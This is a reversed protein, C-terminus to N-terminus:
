LGKKSLTVTKLSSNRAILDFHSDQHLLMCGNEIAIQAILLDTNPVHFGKARLRFGLESIKVWIPEPAPLYHLAGFDASLDHYEKKRRTGSLIESIIVGCTAARDEDLVRGVQEKTKKVSRPRLASVWVSTDILVLGETTM